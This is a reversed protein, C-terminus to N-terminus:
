EAPAPAPAAEGGEGGEIEEPRKVQHIPVALRKEGDDFQIGISRGLPDVQIVEGGYYQSWGTCKAVVRHGVALANADPLGEGSTEQLEQALTRRWRVWKLQVNGEEDGDHYKVELTGDENIGTIRGRYLHSNRVMTAGEARNFNVEIEWNVGLKDGEAHWDFPPLNGDDDASATAPAAAAPAPAAAAEEEGELLEIVDHPVSEQVEGDDFKIDCTKNGRDAIINGPYYKTWGSCKAKVRTGAALQGYVEEQQQEQPPEPESAPASAAEGGEGGEIEEPRKVQHIPVALRKEGDDFQIGISRGLPDVQIVEGGYYQSWGTCKAVVRHGVALANADPLGEGSTEQLEQALTRRWRVWKLQVNGEEDGDHYKVELTGDENIGTIRGRYLHSNRVMTAGEARNFNVEIEWNVGLKDGEAHWDFPPLNGDDDASATAPAAAAPAPAAAAEEEGELLEIVDHPVSEQVEGDDFKIDCTKNGRDAIINGPYYKTWGSCKAKVRTGAALQGYVEEQQQQQQQEQPPPAASQQMKAMQIEAVKASLGAVLMSLADGRTQAAPFGQVQGLVSRVAHAIDDEIGLQSIGDANDMVVAALGSVSGANAGASTVGNSQVSSSKGAAKDLKSQLHDVVWQRPNAPRPNTALLHYVTHTLDDRVGSAGLFEETDKALQVKSM